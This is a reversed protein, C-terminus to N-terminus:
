PINYSNIELDTIGYEYFKSRPIGNKIMTVNIKRLVEQDIGAIIGDDILDQGMWNKIYNEMWFHAKCPNGMTIFEYLKAFKMANNQNFIFHFDGKPMGNHNCYIKNIDYNTIILDRLLIVDPRYLLVIDYESNILEISKKISFSHSIGSFDNPKQCLRSFESEYPINSEYIYNIPNYLKNLNDKLDENWSHIYFHFDCSPNADIIHKKISKSCADYNIYQGPLYISGETYFVREIKAIAGRLCIAVKM